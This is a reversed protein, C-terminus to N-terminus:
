VLITNKEHISFNCWVSRVKTFICSWLIYVCVCRDFELVVRKYDEDITHRQFTSNSSKNHSFFMTGHSIIKLSRSSWRGYICLQYYLNYFPLLYHQHYWKKRRFYLFRHRTKPNSLHTHTYINRLSHHLKEMWSIYITM